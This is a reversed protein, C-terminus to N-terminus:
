IHLDFDNIYEEENIVFVDGFPFNTSDLDDTGAMIIAREIVNRLERVNGAWTYAILAIKADDTLRKNMNYKRNFEEM